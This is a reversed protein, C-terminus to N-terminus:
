FDEGKSLIEKCTPRLVFTHEYQATYSGKVDCLPPLATVIGSQVLQRLAAIHRTQGDDDLWRRCFALTSYTKNIYGLLQKAQPTRLNVFGVEGDKMYHSCEMDEVVYGKGTSGFTEIAYFENEEMRTKDGNKICPVSKGGHIVYRSINHGNLNKIPKIPYVKGDPLLVEYSEMVEQIQEGIDCLRVDIGAALIGTWTAERVAELLPQFVPDFCMTWACDIIRGNVHTGFDVKLVDGSLLITEDGTNPTYHAATHNTSCGTPFARGRSLGSAEVLRQNTSELRRCIDILKMGPKIWTVADQRVRRHVEAALRADKYDMDFIKELERKEVSKSRWLQDGVYPMILGEPYNGDPFVERVPREIELNSPTNDTPPAPAITPADPTPQPPQNEAPQAPQTLQIQAAKTPKKKKKNKNKKKKGGQNNTPLPDQLEKIIQDIGVM